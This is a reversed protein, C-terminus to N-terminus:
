LNVAMKMKVKVGVAFTSFTRKTILSESNLIGIIASSDKIGFKFKQSGV